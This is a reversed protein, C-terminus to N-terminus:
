FSVTVPEREAADSVEDLSDPQFAFARAIFVSPVTALATNYTLVADNYHQRAFAIRNETSSLEEQLALMNASAKLEPTSEALAFISHLSRDLVAEAAARAAVAAGAAVAKERARVITDFLGREHVMYGKISAVINSCHTFAVARTRPGLLAELDATRLEGTEPEGKWERVVVGASALRSWVGINAEHDQNTVIM